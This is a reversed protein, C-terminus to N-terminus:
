LMSVEWKGWALCLRIAQATAPANGDRFRKKSMADQGEQIELFLMLGHEGVAVCKCETGLSKPKREVYSLHDLDGSATTRPQYPSMLEDPVRDVSALVNEFRNQNFKEILPRIEWWPDEGASEPASCAALVAGKIADFRHRSMFKEFGPHPSFRRPQSPPTFLAHRRQPVLTAALFLGEWLVLEGVTLTRSKPDLRRMEADIKTVDVSITGPYLRLWAKLLDGKKGSYSFGKIVKRQPRIEKEPQTIPGVIQPFDDKTNSGNPCVEWM